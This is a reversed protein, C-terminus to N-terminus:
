IARYGCTVGTHKMRTDREPVRLGPQLAAALGAVAESFGAHYQTLSDYYGAGLGSGQKAVEPLGMPEFLGAEIDSGELRATSLSPNCTACSTHTAPAAAQAPQQQAAPGTTYTMHDLDCSSNTCKTTYSVHHLTESM